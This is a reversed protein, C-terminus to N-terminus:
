KVVTPYRNFFDSLTGRSETMEQWNTDEVDGALKENEIQRFIVRSTGWSTEIAMVVCELRGPLDAVSGGALLLGMAENTMGPPPLYAESVMLVIDAGIDRVSERVMRAWTLKNMQEISTNGLQANPIGPRPIAKYDGLTKVGDGFRIIQALPRIEQNERMTSVLMWMDNILRETAQLAQIQYETM